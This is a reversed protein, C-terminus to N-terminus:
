GDNREKAHVQKMCKAPFICNKTILKNKWQDEHQICIITEYSDMTENNQM